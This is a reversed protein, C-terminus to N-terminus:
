AARAAPVHDNSLNALADHGNIRRMKIQGFAILAFLLTVGAAETSFSGQTETRRRFERNLNEIANTTRVSRWLAKPMNYFTLLDSGAEELSRAVPPCSREWKRLMHDYAQQATVRDQADVVANWDRALEPQAHKPCSGRLNEWKHGTCRQVRVGSWVSRAKKLGAHGDSILLAPQPLGRDILKGVFASWTEGSERVVLELDVM